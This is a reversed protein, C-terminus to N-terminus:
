LSWWRPIVTITINDLSSGEELNNITISESRKYSGIIDNINKFSWYSSSNKKYYAAVNSKVVIEEPDGTISNQNIDVIYKGGLEQSSYEPLQTLYYITTDDTRSSSTLNDESLSSKLTWITKADWKYLPDDVGAVTKAKFLLTCDTYDANDGIKVQVELWEPPQNDLYLENNKDFFAVDPVSKTTGNVTFIYEYQKIPFENSGEIADIYQITVNDSDKISYGDPWGPQEPYIISPESSGILLSGESLLEWPTNKEEGNETYIIRYWARKAIKFDITEANIGIGLGSSSDVPEPDIYENPWNEIAEYSPFNNKRITYIVFSSKASKNEFIFQPNENFNNLDDDDTRYYADIKPAIDIESLDDTPTVTFNVDNSVEEVKNGNGDLVVNGESDLKYQKVPEYQLYDNDESYPFALYYYTFTATKSVSLGEPMFAKSIARWNLTTLVESDNIIKKWQAKGFLGSKPLYYFGGINNGQGKTKFEIKTIENNSMVPNFELWDPLDDYGVAIEDIDEGTDINKKCPYLTVVVSSSDKITILESGANYLKISGSNLYIFAKNNSVTSGLISLNSSLSITATDNDNQRVTLWSPLDSLDTPRVTYSLCNKALINNYSEFTYTEAKKMCYTAYSEADYVEEIQQKLLNWSKVLTSIAKIKVQDNYPLYKIYCIEQNAEIKKDYSELVTTNESYKKVSIMTKGSKLQPFHTNNLNISSNINENQNSYCTQEESIISISNASTPLKSITISSSVEKFNEEDETTGVSLMLVDDESNILGDIKIDPLSTYGTPNELIAVSSEFIQEKEGNKLYRQPKCDFTVNLVTAEDYLNPLTGSSRYSAIRYVHPDYSDELRFYGSEATLWKILKESNSVFDTGPRFLSVISYTREVNQWSGNDILLDGNRGPIHEVTIDKQPFSYDPKYQIILDLDKTSLGRFKMNGM